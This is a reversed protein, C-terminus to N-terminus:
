MFLKIAPDLISPSHVNKALIKPMEINAVIALIVDNGNHYLTWINMKLWTYAVNKNM